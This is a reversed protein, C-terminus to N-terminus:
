GRVEAAHGFRIPVRVKAREQQDLLWGVRKVERLRTARHVVRVEPFQSTITEEIDLLQEIRNLWFVSSLNWRSHLVGMSLRTAPLHAVYQGVADLM